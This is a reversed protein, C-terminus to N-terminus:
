HVLTVLQWMLLISVIMPVVVWTVEKHGGHHHLEPVLDSAAIYIFIGATVGLLNPLQPEIVGGLLLGVAIGPMIALSQLVNITVVKTRSWGLHLMVSFDGIEQPVEHAVIALTAPLGLVPNAAYAVGVVVGDLLNHLSDGLILLFPLPETHESHEHVGHRGKFYRMVLRELVFFAVFGVLVAAFVSQPEDTLAVAEPLLDLFVAGLFAGTGFSILPTILRKTVQPRWMLLVGGSLSLVGGLLSYLILDSM